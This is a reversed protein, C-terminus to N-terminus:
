VRARMAHPRADSRNEEGRDISACLTPADRHGNWVIELETGDSEVYTSGRWRDRPLKVIKSRQDPHVRHGYRYASKVGPM